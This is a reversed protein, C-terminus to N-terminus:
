MNNATAVVEQKDTAAMPIVMGQSSNPPKFFIYKKLPAIGSPVKLERRTTGWGLLWPGIEGFAV